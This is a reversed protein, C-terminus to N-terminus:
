LQIRLLVAVLCRKIGHSFPKHNLKALYGWIWQNLMMKVVNGNRPGRNEKKHWIRMHAMTFFTSNYIYGDEPTMLENLFTPLNGTEWDKGCSDGWGYSGYSISHDRLVQLKKFLYVSTSEPNIAHYFEGDVQWAWHQSVLAAPQTFGGPFNPCQLMQYRRVYPSPFEISCFVHQNKEWYFLYSCIVCLGLLLPTPLCKILQM